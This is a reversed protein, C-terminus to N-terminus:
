EPVPHVSHLCLRSYTDAPLELLALIRQQLGSLPTVQRAAGSGGPLVVLNVEQFAHLLLESTPRATARRPQGAYLGALSEGAAALSRRVGFEVLCLVRLALTLLRILGVVHAEKQLYLPSLGLPRGKMRGFGREILYQDRYVAILDIAPLRGAPADTAYVRWGLRRVAAEVAATEVTAEVQWDREVQVRAPQGRYGRVRRERVQEQQRVTLWGAAGHRQLIATVQASLRQPDRQRRKGHGRENLAALEAAAAAVRRRLSAEESKARAPSRAFLRRETWILAQGGVTATLEVTLEFGEAAPEAGPEPAPLLETLPQTGAWVPALCAQWESASFQPLPLPCLYYDGGQHVTARTALAAMKCDGVYLREGRGLDRRVQDILPLYLPDDTQNGPVVLTALPLGLPDLTAMGIKVQPLDPREDKSYGFQFLGTPSVLRDSSATTMDVRVREPTLAYVRLLRRNLAADFGAWRGDAAFARLLAALRDDAVDLRDVFQGTCARLTALRGVAWPEVQNLRHDSQSLLYTLWLVTTWGPSLGLWNGHPLFHWDLLERIGMRDQQALLLPIDDIREITLPPFLNM